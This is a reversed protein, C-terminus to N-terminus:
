GTGLANSPVSMKGPGKSDEDARATVTFTDTIKRSGHCSGLFQAKCCFTNAKAATAFPSLSNLRPQPQLHTHYSPFPAERRHRAEELLAM